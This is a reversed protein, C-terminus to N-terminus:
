LSATVTAPIPQRNEGGESEWSSVQISNRFEREEGCETCTGISTPGNPSEILWYHMCIPLENEVVSSVNVLTM